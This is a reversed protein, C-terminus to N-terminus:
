LGQVFDRRFRALVHQVGLKFGAHLDSTSDTVAPPTMERELQLYQERTMRFATKENGVPPDNQNM